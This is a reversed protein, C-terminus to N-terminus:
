AVELVPISLDSLTSILEEKNAVIDALTYQALVAMYAALAKGLIGKFACASTFRCRPENCDIPALSNELQGVLTGLNIESAEVALKFGGSKGRITQIYGLKGLHHIIKAVHNSSLEFVETVESIRFLVEREPQMAVYMLIRIGFDTYRTLKM